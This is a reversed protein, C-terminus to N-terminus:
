RLGTAHLWEKFIMGLRRHKLQIYWFHNKFALAAAVTSVAIAAFSAMLTGTILLYVAYSFIVISVLVMILFLRFFAQLREGVDKESMGLRELAQEFTETRKPQSVVFLNKAMGLISKSGAKARSLDMWNPIREKVLRKTRKLKM